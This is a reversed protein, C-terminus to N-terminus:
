CLVCCAPTFIEIASGLYVSAKVYGRQTRQWRRGGGFVPKFRSERFMARNCSTREKVLLFLKKFPCRLIKGLIKSLPYINRDGGFSGGEVGLKINEVFQLIKSNPEYPPPPNIAPLRNLLGM